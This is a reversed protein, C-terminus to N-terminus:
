LPHRGCRGTQKDGLSGCPSGDKKIGTCRVAGAPMGDRKTGNRRISGASKARSAIGGEVLTGRIFPTGDFVGEEEIVLDPNKKLRTIDKRRSSYIQWLGSEDDICYVTEREAASLAM